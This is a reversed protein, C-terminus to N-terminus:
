RNEGEFICQAVAYERAHSLSICIRGVGHDKALQAHYGHLAVQPCGLTDPLIEIELLSGGRLGTGFAKLVAEKGAFRAAYSAARQAGRSDCYAIENQTFVRQVFQRKEIAKKMRSIEIIDTGLGLILDIVEYLFLQQM